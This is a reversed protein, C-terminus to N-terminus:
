RKTGNIRCVERISCGECIVPDRRNPCAGSIGLHCLAFDYKLPDEPDLALLADTIQRALKWDQTRRSGLGLLGAMRAIHTDLPITLIRPEVDDWLGLDVFDPGRVMWRLFLNLRKCAGGGAPDPLLYRFGRSDHKVYGRLTTVMRTLPARADKDEPNLASVFLAQLSGYDRLAFGIASLLALLDEGRTMRYSFSVVEAPEFGSTELSRAPADGLPALARRAADRIMSVRGYALSSVILAVVERDAPDPYEWVLGVPDRERARAWDFSDLLSDL